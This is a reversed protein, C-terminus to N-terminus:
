QVVFYPNLLNEKNYQLSTNLKYELVQKGAARCVADGAATDWEMTPALRPYVHAAGEAVLCLKLSSGMSIFEVKGHIDRMQSVFEETELSHHSKSAVLTFVFPSQKPIRNNSNLLDMTFAQDCSLDIQYAGIHADGLYLKKLIPSYVVGLIPENNEILAINVTFEGNRKIFEKTGDLPDVMWFRTWNKRGEFPISKGEESLIPLGTSALIAEIVQHANQDALTLPSHDEKDFVEFDKNYIILIENAAALAAKVAIEIM